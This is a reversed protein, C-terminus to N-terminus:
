LNPRKTQWFKSQRVLQARDQPNALLLAVIRELFVNNQSGKLYIVDKAQYVQNLQDALAKPSPFTLINQSPMGAATAAKKMEPANKGVVVLCDVTTAAFKAVDQHSAVEFEGLENMNGLIAVKRRTPYITKILQLGAKVAEPSAANATDDVLTTHKVGKLVRGRGAPIQYKLLGSLIKPIPVELKAAVVVAALLSLLQYGAYVKAKFPYEGELGPMKLKLVGTCGDQDFQLSHASVGLQDKLELGYWYVERGPFNAPKFEKVTVPDDASLILIGGEPVASLLRLTEAAMQDETLYSVMHVPVLATLVAIQPPIQGTLFDTDGDADSSYELCYHAKVGKKVLKLLPKPVFWTKWIVKFWGWLGLPPDTFGLLTLPLGTDTALNGFSREVLLGGADLLDAIAEKASTKGVSGGVGIVFPQEAKIRKQSAMWLQKLIIRKLKGTSSSM